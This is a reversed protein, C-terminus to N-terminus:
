GGDSTDNVRLQFCKDYVGTVMLLSAVNPLKCFTFLLHSWVPPVGPFPAGPEEPCLELSTDQQSSALVLLMFSLSFLAHSIVQPRNTGGEMQVM